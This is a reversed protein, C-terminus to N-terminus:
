AAARADTRQRGTQFARLQDPQSAMFENIFPGYIGSVGPAWAPRVGPSAPPLPGVTLRRWRSRRDAGDFVDARAWRREDRNASGYILAVWSGPPIM